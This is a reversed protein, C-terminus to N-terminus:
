KNLLEGKGGGGIYLPRLLALLLPCRPLRGEERGELLPRPPCLNGRWWSLFVDAFHVSLIVCFFLLLFHCTQWGIAIFNQGFIPGYGPRSKHPPKQSFTSKKWAKQSFTSKKVRKQPLLPGKWARKTCFTSKKTHKKLFPLDNQKTNPLFQVKQTTLPPM